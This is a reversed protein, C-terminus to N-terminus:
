TFFYEVFNGQVNRGMTVKNKNLGGNKKLADCIDCMDSFGTFFKIVDGKKFTHGSTALQAKNPV